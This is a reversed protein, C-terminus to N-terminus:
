RRFIYELLSMFAEKPNKRIAASTSVIVMLIDDAIFSCLGIVAYEMEQSLKYDKLIFGVMVSVFMALVLGRLFGILSRRDESLISRSAAALISLGATSTLVDINQDAM